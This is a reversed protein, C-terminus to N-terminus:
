NKYFIKGFENANNQYQKPPMGTFRKFEKIFHSQDYYLSHYARNILIAEPDKILTNYVFQFRTIACLDKISVGLRDQFKMHLWRSSYGTIRELESVPIRGQTQRIRNVCFEFISDTETSFLLQLLFQQVLAIKTDLSNALAIREQIEKAYRHLVEDAMFIYNTLESHKLRFFRYAGSPSFEVGITGSPADDEAEVIFPTDSVGILTMQYEKSLRYYGKRQGALGNRFPIILKVMGNPVVIKMDSDPVRCDSEFVWLRAVHDSLRPDIPIQRLSINM